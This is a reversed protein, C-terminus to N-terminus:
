SDTKDIEDFTTAIDADTVKGADGGTSEFLRETV